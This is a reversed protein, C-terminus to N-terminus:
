DSGEIHVGREFELLSVNFSNTSRFLAAPKLDLIPSESLNNFPKKIKKPSGEYYDEDSSSLLSKNAFDSNPINPDINESEIPNRSVTLREKGIFSMGERELPSLNSM